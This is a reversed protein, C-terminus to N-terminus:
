FNKGGGGRGGAGLLFGPLAVTITDDLWRSLLLFMILELISSRLRFEDFATRVKGILEVDRVRSFCKTRRIFWRFRRGSIAIGDHWRSGRTYDNDIIIKDFRGGIIGNRSKTRPGQAEHRYSTRNGGTKRKRIRKRTRFHPIGRTRGPRRTSRSKKEM